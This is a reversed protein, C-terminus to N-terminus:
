GARDEAWRLVLWCVSFVLFDRLVLGCGAAGEVALVGLLALRGTSWRVASMGALAGILCGLIAM